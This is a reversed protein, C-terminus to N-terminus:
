QRNPDRSALRRAKVKLYPPLYCARHAASGPQAWADARPPEVVDEIVFGAHCLGGLLRELPHIFEVTGPELHQDQASVRWVAQGSLAPQTLCYRDAPCGTAQLSAPQKHQVTYLGGPRLVRAVQRYVADLDVIYCSSVPQVVVDFSAESLPALDDLSLQLTRISLGFREALREDHELMRASRDVVTVEFGAMAHLLSHTGGGAALMLLRSGAVLAPEALWPDIAARAAVPDGAPLVAPDSMHFAPDASLRQWASDNERDARKGSDIWAATWTELQRWRSELSAATQDVLRAAVAEIPSCPYGRVLLRPPHPEHMGIWTAGWCDVALEGLWSGYCLVFAQADDISQGVRHRDLIQDVLSIDQPSWRLSFGHHREAHIVAAEAYARM